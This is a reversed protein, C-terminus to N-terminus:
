PQAETIYIRTWKDNVLEQAVHLDCFEPKDDALFGLRVLADLPLKCVALMNDQDYEQRHQFTIRVTMKRREKANEMLYQRDRGQILAHITRKWSVLQKVRESWHARALRNAPPPLMPVLIMVSYKDAGTM